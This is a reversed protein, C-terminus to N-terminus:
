IMLWVLVGGKVTMNDREVTVRDAGYAVTSIWLHNELINGPM